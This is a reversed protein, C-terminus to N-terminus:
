VNRLLGRAQLALWLEAIDSTQTVDLGTIEEVRRIRHLVTQRHVHLVEATKHWSRQNALFVELTSLLGRDHDREQEVLNGLVREVLAAAEDIGSIGFLTTAEGYRFTGSGVRAAARTAWGAERAAEPIREITRIPGSVGLSAGPGLNSRIVEHIPEGDACLLYLLGSRHLVLHALRNRWLAVHIERLAAVQDSMIAVLTARAPDIRLERLQKSARGTDIRGEILQALLEAGARRRNEVNMLSQSLELAIVTAAHQVLIADPVEKGESVLVLVADPKTPIDVLRVDRGDPLPLAFAGATLQSSSRETMTELLHLLAEDLEPDEPYWPEVPDVHCVHMECGLQKSLVGSLTSSESSESVTRQMAHYIRETRVLRHSQELLNAAAVARSIAVFPMPYGVYLVPFELRESSEAFAETLPPCYMDEGIALGSAGAGVLREVLDQQGPGDAPFTMGNTMLLEGGTLWRWPEPLDSTHTWTVDRGVGAGGSHLRLRMHPMELLDAVTIAM